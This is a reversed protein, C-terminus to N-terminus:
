SIEDADDKGNKDKEGDDVSDTEEDYGIMTDIAQKFSYKDQLDVRDEELM